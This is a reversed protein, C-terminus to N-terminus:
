LLQAQVRWSWSSLSPGANRSVVGAAPTEKNHIIILPDNISLAVVVNLPKSALSYPNYVLQFISWLGSSRSWTQADDTEFMATHADILDSLLVRHLYKGEGRRMLDM